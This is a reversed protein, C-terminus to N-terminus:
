IFGGGGAVVGGGNGDATDVFIGVVSVEDQFNFVSDTDTSEFFRLFPRGLLIQYGVGGGIAAVSTLNCFTETADDVSSACSLSFFHVSISDSLTPALGDAFDSSVRPPSFISFWDSGLTVGPPM